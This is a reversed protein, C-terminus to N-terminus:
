RRWGSVHGCGDVGRGGTRGAGGHEVEDAVRRQDLDRLEVGAAALQEELQLRLVGAARDLVADAQRHDLGGLAVAPELRAARHDLRRGAVRAQAQRQHRAGLAVAHHQHHGVLHRRLLHQVQLRQAGLHVGRAGVHGLAMGLVVLVHGRAERALGAAVREVDVLEVVGGVRQRVLHGGRGLDPLLHAVADVRDDAADAGAARM